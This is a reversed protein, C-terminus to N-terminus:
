REMSLDKLLQQFREDERLSDLDSDEAMVGGVDFGAEASAKLTEIAEDTRGTLAYACALNYLSIGRIQEFKAAAKHAAIAKEHAGSMHLNYAYGFAARPDDSQQEVLVAFTQAAAEHQGAQQLQRAKALTPGGSPPRSDSGGRGGGGGMRQEMWAQAKQMIASFQPDESLIQHIEQIASVLEENEGIRQQFMGLLEQGHMMAEHALLGVREHIVPMMEEIIPQMHLGVVQFLEGLREKGGSISFGSGHSARDESAGGILTVYRADHRIWDLDSDDDASGRVDFGAEMAAALAEFAEDSEGLLAHACGLNYLAIGKFRDFTAAKKHVEKAKELRGAVHLSYGLNFWAIANDPEAEVIAGWATAAGEFDGGRQLAAAEDVTPPEVIPTAAAFSAGAMLLTSFLVAIVNHTNKRM